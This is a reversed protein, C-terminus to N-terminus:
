IKKSKNLNEIKKKGVNVLISRRKKRNAFEQIDQLVTTQCGQLRHLEGHDWREWKIKWRIDSNQGAGSPTNKTSRKAKKGYCAGSSTHVIQGVFQLQM